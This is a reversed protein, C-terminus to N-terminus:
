KELKELENYLQNIFPEVLRAYAKLRRISRAGKPDKRIKLRVDPM